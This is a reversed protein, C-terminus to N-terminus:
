AHHVKLRRYLVVIWLLLILDFAVLVSVAPWIGFQMWIPAASQVVVDAPSRLLLRFSKARWDGGGRWGSGREILCIGTISVDSGNQLANFGADNGAWGLYANFTFGNQELVLFQERGRLTREVIRGSTQILRCDNTGSLIEDLNLAVAVPAVGDGVKRYMADELIPTYEGKAPFGLVEAQDGPKLPAGSQTRCYVGDKDNQIFVAGPEAYAVTGSIKVRHGSDGQPTFQLLSGLDQVSIDFPNGSAPKEVMLDTARPALLRIGFLQRQHNFLTVCVGQVKVVSDVLEAPPTGANQGVFASFREGDTMVDIWYQRSVQDFQVARVIGKVQVFQSDEQGSVLQQGTVPTAEPLNGEGVVKISTPIIVPAYEGPSTVGQIEVVQGATLAPMNTSLDRFYIGATSDQVFRSNLGEDCFTVVGTLKVPLQQAAQQPTLSRVQAATLLEEAPPNQGAACLASAALTCLILLCPKITDPMTSSIIKM